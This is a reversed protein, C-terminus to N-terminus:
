DRTESQFVLGVQAKLEAREFFSLPSAALAVGAGGECRLIVRAM